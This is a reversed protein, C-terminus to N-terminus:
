HDHSAGSKEIDAKILYSNASVYRDGAALGAKVEVTEGDDRGLEVARAEYLDDANLFVVKSDRLSQIAALPVALPASQTAITIDGTVFLGPTWRNDRNDLAVRAVLAQNSGGIPAVHSVRGAGQIRGDSSAIHAQQGPALRTRDNPFVSLEAWVTSLDAVVFLPEQSTSEGPNALRQTVVGAIPTVVSYVQLSENSEVTALVEGAKVTDGIRRSVTRIVGAYRASVNRIREANAQIAGYLKLRERLEGPGAVAIEIGSSQAIPAPIRTRGEHPQGAQAHAASAGHAESPSEHPSERSGAPSLEGGCATLLMLLASISYIAKM